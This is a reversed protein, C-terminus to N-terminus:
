NAVADGIALVPLTLAVGVAQSRTTITSALTLGSRPRSLPRLFVVVTVVRYPTTRDSTSRERPSGRAPTTGGLPKKAAGTVPALGSM